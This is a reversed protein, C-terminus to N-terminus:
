KPSQKSRNLTWIRLNLATAYSVWVIYPLLLYSATPNVQNFLVATYILTGLLASIDVLATFIKHKAFFIPSWLFNLALQILFVTLEKSHASFGGDSHVMWASVSMMIYLLTWM